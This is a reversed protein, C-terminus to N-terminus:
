INLVLAVTLITDKKELTSPIPQNDYNIEYSAKLSWYSNLSSTIATETNINYNTSSDFDYLYELSQSFTNKKSFNYQYLAFLRGRLFDDTSSDPHKEHVLELGAENNLIHKPGTLWKYGLGPGLNYRADIGAFSDKMWGAIIMTYIHQSLSYDSRLEAKYSESNRVGDSKGNLAALKLSSQWNENHKVTLLDKFSLTELQTNGGTKVYSFEAADTWNRAPEEEALAAPPMTTVILALLLIKPYSTM